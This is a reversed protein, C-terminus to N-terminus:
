ASQKLLCWRKSRVVFMQIITANRRSRAVTRSKHRNQCWLLVSWATADSVQRATSRKAWGYFGLMTAPAIIYAEMAWGVSATQNSLAGTLSDVRDVTALRAKSGHRGAVAVFRSSSLSRHSQLPQFAM